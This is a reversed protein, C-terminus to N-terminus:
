DKSKHLLMTYQKFTKVTDPHEPGLVARRIALARGELQKAERYKKEATCVQALSVLINSVEIHDPGFRQEDIGLARRYLDEAKTYRDKKYRGDGYYAAALNVLLPLTRPHAPGLTRGAIGLARELVKEAETFRNQLSYVVGLNNLASAM